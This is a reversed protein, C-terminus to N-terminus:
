SCPRPMPPSAIWAHTSSCGREGTSSASSSRPKARVPATTIPLRSNSTTSPGCPQSSLTPYPWSWSWDAAGGHKTTVCSTGASTRSADLNRNTVSPTAAAM